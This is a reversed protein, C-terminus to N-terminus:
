SLTDVLKVVDAKSFGTSAAEMFSTTKFLRFKVAFGRGEWRVGCAFAPFHRV